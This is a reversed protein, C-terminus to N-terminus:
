AGLGETDGWPCPSAGTGHGGGEMPTARSIPLTPVARHSRIQLWASGQAGRPPQLLRPGGMPEETSTQPSSPVGQDQETSHPTPVHPLATGKHWPHQALLPAPLPPSM